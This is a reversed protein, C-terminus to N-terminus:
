LAWRFLTLVFDNTVFKLLDMKSPRFIRNYANVSKSNAKKYVTPPILAKQFINSSAKEGTEKSWLTNFIRGPVFIDRVKM